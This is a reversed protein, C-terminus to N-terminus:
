LGYKKTYEDLAEKFEVWGKYDGYELHVIPGDKDRMKGVDYGLETLFDEVYFGNNKLTRAARAVTAVLGKLEKAQEESITSVM